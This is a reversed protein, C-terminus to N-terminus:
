GSAWRTQQRLSLLSIEFAAMFGACEVFDARPAGANSSRRSWDLVLFDFRLTPYGEISSPHILVSLRRCLLTASASESDAAGASLSFSSLRSSLFLFLFGIL